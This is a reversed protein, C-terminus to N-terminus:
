IPMFLLWALNPEELRCFGRRLVTSNHLFLSEVRRTPFRAIKHLFLGFIFLFFAWSRHCRFRSTAMFLKFNLSVRRLIESGSAIFTRSFFGFNPHFLHLSFVIGPHINPCSLGSFCETFHKIRTPPIGLRPYVDMQSVLSRMM